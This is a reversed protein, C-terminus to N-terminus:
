RSLRDRWAKRLEDSDGRDLDWWGPGCPHFRGQDDVPDPSAQRRLRQLARIASVKALRARGSTADSLALLELEHELDSDNMHRPDVVSIERASLQVAILGPDGEARSGGM